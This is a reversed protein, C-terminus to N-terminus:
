LSCERAPGNLWLASSVSASFCAGYLSSNMSRSLLGWHSSSTFGFPVTGTIWSKSFSVHIGPTAHRSQSQMM